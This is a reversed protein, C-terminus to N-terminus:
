EHRVEVMVLERIRARHAALWFFATINLFAEEQDRRELFFETFLMEAALMVACVSELDKASLRKIEAYGNIVERALSFWRREDEAAGIKRKVMDALLYGLDYSVPGRPLHDLDIFGTVEGHDLLINGAHCDGHVYQAPLGAFATRMKGEVECLVAEFRSLIDRDLGMRIGPVSRDFVRSTLDMDWSQIAYPYSELARHLWAIARGINRHARELDTDAIYSGGPLYPSLTYINGSHLVGIRDHDNPIPPSVPLNHQWLYRLVHARSEIGGARGAHDVRKLVFARGRETVMRWATRKQNLTASPCLHGLRKEWHRVIEAIMQETNM